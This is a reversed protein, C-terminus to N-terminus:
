KKGELKAWTQEQEKEVTVQVHPGRADSGMTWTSDDASVPYLLKVDMLPKASEGRLAVRLTSRGISVIVGSKTTGEPLTVTVEVESETQSWRWGRAVNEAEEQDATKAGVAKAKTIDSFEGLVGKWEANEVPAQQIWPSSSDMEHKGFSVSIPGPDCCVRGVYVDGPLPNELDLGCQKALAFARKNAPKNKLTGMEDYYLATQTCPIPLTTKSNRVLPLMEVVGSDAARQFDSMKEDIKETGYQSRLEDMNTLSGGAFDKKLLVSLTDHCMIADATLEELPALEDAPILVYTFKADSGIQAPSTDKQYGDAM